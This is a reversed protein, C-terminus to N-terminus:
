KGKTSTRGDSSERDQLLQQYIRAFSQIDKVLENRARQSDRAALAARIKAHQSAGFDHERMDDRRGMSKEISALYPGSQKWLGEIIHLLKPSQAARYIAFHVTQNAQMVAPHDRRSTAAALRKNATDFEKLGRADIREAALYAAHGEVAIRAEILASYQVPDITPVRLHRNPLVELAGESVLRATAERVPMPSVNLMAALGRLTVAQGLQFEGRRLAESLHNYVKDILTERELPVLSSPRNTM